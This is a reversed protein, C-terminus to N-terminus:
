SPPREGRNSQHKWFDIGVSAREDATADTDARKQDPLRRNLYRVVRLFPTERGGAKSTAASVNGGAAHFADAVASVFFHFWMKPPAGKQPKGADAICRDVGRTANERLSHLYESDASVNRQGLFLLHRALTAGDVESSIAVLLRDIGEVAGQLLALAGRLQKQDLRGGEPSCLDILRKNLEARIEASFSVEGLRELEKFDEDALARFDGVDARSTESM